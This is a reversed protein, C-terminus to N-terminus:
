VSTLLEQYIKNSAKKKAQVFIQYMRILAFKRKQGDELNNLNNMERHLFQLLDAASERPFEIDVGEEEEASSSNSGGEGESEEDSDKLIQQKSEEKKMSLLILDREEQMQIYKKADM